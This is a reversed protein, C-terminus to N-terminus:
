DDDKEEKDEEVKIGFVKRASKRLEKETYFSGFGFCSDDCTSSAEAAKENIHEILKDIFKEVLQEDM